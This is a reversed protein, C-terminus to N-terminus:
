GYHTVEGIKTGQQLYVINHSANYIYLKNETSELRVILGNKIFHKVVHINYYESAMTENFTVYYFRHPELIFVNEYRIQHATRKSLALKEYTPEPLVDKGLFQNQFDDSLVFCDKVTVKM